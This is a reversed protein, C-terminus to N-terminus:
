QIGEASECNIDATRVNQEALVSCTQRVHHKNEHVATLKRGDSNFRVVGYFVDPATQTITITFGAGKTEEVFIPKEFPVSPKQTAQKFREGDVDFGMDTLYQREVDTLAPKGKIEEIPECDPVNADEIPQAEPEDPSGALCDEFASKPYQPKPAGHREAQEKAYNSRPPETKCFRDMQEPTFPATGAAENERKTKWDTLTM